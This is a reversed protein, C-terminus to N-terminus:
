PRPSAHSSLGSPHGSPRWAQQYQRESASATAVQPGVLRGTGCHARGPAVGTSVRPRFAWWQCTHASRQGAALEAWDRGHDRHRLAPQDLPRARSCSYGEWFTFASSLSIYLVKHPRSSKFRWGKRSWSRFRARRGTGGRGCSCKGAVHSPDERTMLVNVQPVECNASRRQALRCCFRLDPQQPGPWAAESPSPWCGISDHSAPGPVLTSLHNCQAPLDQTVCPV